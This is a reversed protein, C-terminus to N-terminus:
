SNFNHSVCRYISTSPMDFYFNANKHININNTNETNQTHLNMNSASTHQHWTARKHWNQVNTSHWFAYSPTYIGYSIHMNLRLLLHWRYKKSCRDIDLFGYWIMKYPVVIGNQNCCKLFVTDFNMRCFLTNSGINECYFSYSTYPLTPTNSQWYTAESFKHFISIVWSTAYLNM